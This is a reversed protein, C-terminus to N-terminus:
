VDMVSGDAAFARSPVSIAGAPVDLIADVDLEVGLGPADPVDLRHGDTTWCRTAIESLRPQDICLELIAFNPIAMAVHASAATSVPGGPNHPAVSARYVDAYASIKMLETIGGAHCVDPQVIDVLQQELVHRFEWRSFLREGLALSIGARRAEAAVPAVLEPSEPAIPEEIWRPTFEAAARILRVAEDPRARGHSDILIDVEDGVAERLVALRRAALRVRERESFVSDAAWAGTKLTRVGGRVLSRAEDALRDPDYIGVHRYTEIWDRSPGGLLRYVPVGFYKGKIDWLAQDIAALASGLVVGGRWFGHRNARQWIKETALADSGILRRGLEDVAARVTSEWLETSAEGWGHLGDTTEVRVFTWNRVGGFTSFTEVKAISCPQEPV